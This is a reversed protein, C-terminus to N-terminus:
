FIMKMLTVSAGNGGPPHRVKRWRAGSTVAAAAVVVVVDDDSVSRQHTQSHRLAQDPRAQPWVAFGFVSFDGASSNWLFTARKREHRYLLRFNLSYTVPVPVRSQLQIIPRLHLLALCLLSLSMSVQGFSLRYSTDNALDSRRKATM